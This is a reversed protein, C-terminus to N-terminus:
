GARPLVDIDLDEDIKQRTGDGPSPDPRVVIRTLWDDVHGDGDVDLPLSLEVLVDEGDVYILLFWLMPATGAAESEFLELQSQNTRLGELSRKGKRYLTTPHGKPNGTEPSGSSVVIAMRGDPDVTRCLGGENNKSWKERAPRNEILVM